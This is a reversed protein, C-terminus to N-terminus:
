NNVVALVLHLATLIVIYHSELSLELNVVSNVFVAFIDMLLLLVSAIIIVRMVKVFKALLVLCYTWDRTHYIVRCKGLCKREKEM